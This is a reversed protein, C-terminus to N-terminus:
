LDLDRPRRRHAEAVSRERLYGTVAAGQAEFATLHM